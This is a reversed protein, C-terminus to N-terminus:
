YSCTLVFFIVWLSFFLLSGEYCYLSREEVEELISRERGTNAKAKLTKTGQIWKIKRNKWRWDKQLDERKVTHNTSNYSVSAAPWLTKGSCLGSKLFGSRTGTCAPIIFFPLPLCHSSPLSWCSVLIPSGLILVFLCLGSLALQIWSM